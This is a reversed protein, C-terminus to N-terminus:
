AIPLGDIWRFCARLSSRMVTSVPEPLLCCPQVNAGSRELWCRICELRKVLYKSSTQRFGVLEVVSDGSPDQAFIFTTDVALRQGPHKPGLLIVVEIEVFPQALM